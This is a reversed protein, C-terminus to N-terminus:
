SSGAERCRRLLARWAADVRGSGLRGHCYSALQGDLGKWPWRIVFANGLAIRLLLGEDQFQGAADAELIAFKRIAAFAEVSDVDVGDLGVQYSGELVRYSM